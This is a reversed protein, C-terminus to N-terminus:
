GSHTDAEGEIALLVTRRCRRCKLEVMGNVYRALLSGCTCRLVDNADRAGAESLECELASASTAPNKELVM